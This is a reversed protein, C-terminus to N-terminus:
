IKRTQSGGRVKVHYPDCTRDRDRGGIFDVNRRPTSFHEKNLSGAVALDDYELAAAAARLHNPSFRAYIKRTVNVNSHGLYQAIEEMPVGSEAM